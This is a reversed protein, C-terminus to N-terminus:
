QGDEQAGLKADLDELAQLYEVERNIAATKADRLTTIATNRTSIVGAIESGGAPAGYELSLRSLTRRM